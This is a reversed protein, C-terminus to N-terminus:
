MRGLNNVGTSIQVLHNFFQKSDELRDPKWPEPVGWGYEWCLYYDKNHNDFYEAYEHHFDIFIKGNEKPIATSDLKKVERIFRKYCKYFNKDAPVYMYYM